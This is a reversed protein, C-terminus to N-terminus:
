VHASVPSQGHARPSPLALPPAGMQFEPNSLFRAGAEQKRRRNRSHLGAAGLTVVLAVFVIVVVVGISSDELASSPEAAPPAPSVGLGTVVHQVSVVPPTIAEVVVGLSSTLESPTAAALELQATRASLVEPLVMEVDVLVSSSLERVIQVDIAHVFRGLLATRFADRNFSAVTGSITFTSTLV